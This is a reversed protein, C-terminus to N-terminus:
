IKEYKRRLRCFKCVRGYSPYGCIECQRIDHKKELMDDIKEFSKVFNLLIGNRKKEIEHLWKKLEITPADKQYPCKKNCYEIGHMKAYELCEDDKLYYLPKFRGVMKIEANGPLVAKIGRFNLLNVNALNNFAFTITDSLNHGTVVYDCDNEFAFKNMLYRKATGCVSCKRKAKSIDIGYDALKIIHLKYGLKKCFNEAYRYCEKSYGAIGLDIYFPIIKFRFRHLVQLAVMSDKGGSIAVAMKGKVNYKDIVSRVKGIFYKEFDV